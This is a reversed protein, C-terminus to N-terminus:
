PPWRYEKRSEKQLLYSARFPVLNNLVGQSISRTLFPFESSLARSSCGRLVSYFLSLMDSGIYYKEQNSLPFRLGKANGESIRRTEKPSGGFGAASTGRFRYKSPIPSSDSACLHM